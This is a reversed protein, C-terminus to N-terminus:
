GWCVPFVWGATLSDRDEGIARHYLNITNAGQVAVVLTDSIKVFASVIWVRGM